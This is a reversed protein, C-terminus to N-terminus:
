RRHQVGNPTAKSPVAFTIGGASGRRGGTGGEGAATPPPRRSYEPERDSKVQGVHAAIIRCLMPETDLPFLCVAQDPLCVSQFRRSALSPKAGFRKLANPAFTIYRDLTVQEVECFFLKRKRLIHKSHESNLIHRDISTGYLEVAFANAINASIDIFRCLNRILDEIPAFPNDALSALRIRLMRYKSIDMGVFADEDFAFVIVCNVARKPVFDMHILFDSIKQWILDPVGSSADVSVLRGTERFYQLFNLVASEYLAYRRQMRYSDMEDSTSAESGDANTKKDKSGGKGESKPLKDQPVALDISFLVPYKEELKEMEDWCDKILTECKLLHRMNPMLDVLFGSVNHSVGLDIEDSVLQLLWDLTISSSYERLIDQLGRMDPGTNIRDNEDVESREGDEKDGVRLSSKSDSTPLSGRRPRASGLAALSGSHISGTEALMTSGIAGGFATAKVNNHSNADRLSTSSAVRDLVHQLLLAEGSIVTLGFMQAVDDVVRGKHTGPGGFIFIIKPGLYPGPRTVNMGVRISIKPMKKPADKGNSVRSRNLFVRSPWSLCSQMSSPPPQDAGGDVAAAAALSSAGCGM